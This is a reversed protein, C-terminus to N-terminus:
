RDGLPVPGSRTESNAFLRRGSPLAIGRVVAPGDSPLESPESM